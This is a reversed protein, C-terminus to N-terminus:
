EIVNFEQLTMRRLTEPNRVGRQRLEIVKAAVMQTAPDSRDALGLRICVAVFVTSLEEIDKQDFSQGSLYPRIPMM